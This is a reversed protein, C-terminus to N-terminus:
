QTHLLSAYRMQDVHPRETASYEMKADDEWAPMIGEQSLTSTIHLVSLLFLIAKFLYYNEKQPLNSPPVINNYLNLKQKEDNSFRVLSDLPFVAPPVGVKVNFNKSDTFVTKINDAEMNVEQVELNSQDDVARSLEARESNSAM